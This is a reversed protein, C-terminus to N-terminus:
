YLIVRKDSTTLFFTLSKKNKNVTSQKETNAFRVLGEIKLM